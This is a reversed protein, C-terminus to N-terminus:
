SADDDDLALPIAIAAAVGAGLVWPNTLIGGGRGLLGGGGGFLGGGGAGHGHKHCYHGRAPACSSCASAGGSAAHGAYPDGAPEPYYESEVIPEPTMPADSQGRITAGDVILASRAANPPATGARWTRIRTVAGNATAVEYVGGKLGKIAFRGQKDTNLRMLSRGNQQLSIRSQNELQGQRNAVQGVLLGEGQLAVDMTQGPQRGSPQAAFGQRTSVMGFCALLVFGLPMFRIEKM